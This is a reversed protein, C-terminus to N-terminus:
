KLINLYHIKCLLVIIFEYLSFSILFIFFLFKNAPINTPTIAIVARAPQPSVVCDGCDDVEVVDDDDSKLASLSMVTTDLSFPLPVLPANM